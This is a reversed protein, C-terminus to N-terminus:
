VQISFRVILYVLCYSSFSCDLCLFSTMSNYNAKVDPNSCNYKDPSVYEVLNSGSCNYDPQCRSMFFPRLEGVMNKFIFTLTQAFCNGFFFAILYNYVELATKKISISEDNKNIQFCHDFIEIVVM